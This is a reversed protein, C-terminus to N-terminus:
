EAQGNVKSCSPPSPIILGMKIEAKEFTKEGIYYDDYVKDYLNGLNGEKEIKGAVSSSEKIYVNNFDITM